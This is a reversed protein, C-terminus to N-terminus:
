TQGWQHLLTCSATTTTINTPKHGNQDYLKTIQNYIEHQFEHDLPTDYIDKPDWTLNKVPLCNIINMVDDATQKETTDDHFMTMSNMNTLYEM